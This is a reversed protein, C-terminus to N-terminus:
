TPITTPRPPIPNPNHYGVLKAVETALARRLPRVDAIGNQGPGNPHLRSTLIIIYTQSIPDIWLSCGTFGSHGFSGIPFFDGRTTSLWTNIDWGLGRLENGPISSTSSTMLKITKQNLIRKKNLVGENLIMKCFQALDQTTSFIGAHGAVGNLLLACPDHVVGQVYEQDNKDRKDCPACLNKKEKKPCFFTEHMGLPEFIKATCFRDLTQNSIKEVLWGLIIFNLDSYKFIKDPLCEPTIDFVNIQAQDKGQTFDSRTPIAQLGSRHRLLQEITIYQKKHSAFAPFYSSVYDALSLKKEEYLIMIAVATFVKTLSAIDFITNKTMAIKNPMCSRLGFAKHYLINEKKGVLAVVGPCARAQISEQVITDLTDGSFAHIYQNHITNIFLLCLSVFFFRLSCM